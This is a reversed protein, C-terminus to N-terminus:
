CIKIKQTGSFIVFHLGSALHPKDSMWPHQTPNCPNPNVVSHYDWKDQLYKHVNLNMFEMGGNILKMKYIVFVM